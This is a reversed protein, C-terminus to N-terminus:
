RASMKYTLSASISAIRLLKSSHHFRRRPCILETGIARRRSLGNGCVRNLDPRIQVLGRAEDGFSASPRGVSNCQVKAFPARQRCKDFSRCRRM